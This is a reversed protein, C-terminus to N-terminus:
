LCGAARFSYFGAGLPDNSRRGMVIHDILNIDVAAAAERLTRTIRIDQASPSPDGSPHNHACIIGSAGERIAERFVERPHVLTSSATGSSVEVRKILRGKRNLCLVWFKEVELGATIPALYSAVGEAHDLMPESDGQYTLVRRAVEMVAVLQVAKVQGIGKLARFSATRWGVLGALSGAQAVLRTAVTMVDQGRTGSRLLLALLEADSLAGPGYHLLREQPREHPATEQLRNISSSSDVPM